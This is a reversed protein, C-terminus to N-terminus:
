RPVSLVRVAAAGPLCHHPARARCTKQWEHRWMQIIYNISYYSRSIKIGIILEILLLLSNTTIM